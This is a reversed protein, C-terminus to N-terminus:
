LRQLETSPPISPAETPVPSPVAPPEPTAAAPLRPLEIEQSMEQSYWGAIEQYKGEDTMKFFVLALVALACIVAQLLLAGGWGSGEGVDEEWGAELAQDEEEGGLSEIERLKEQDQM